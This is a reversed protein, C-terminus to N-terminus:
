GFTFHKSAQDTVYWVFVLFTGCSLGLIAAVRYRYSSKLFVTHLGPRGPVLVLMYVLMYVPLLFRVEMASSLTTLCCAVLALPYRWRTPRLSRRSATWLVRILALLVLLFGALRRVFISGLHEVYPTSQRVDLGNVLHRAFVMGMALPHSVIIGLYQGLTGIRDDEQEELIHLGEPDIYFMTPRHGAGVFTEYRQVYMGGTLQIYDLGESSGPIFSWKHAYRHSSLAQPLSVGAFGVILLGVCLVRHALSARPAKGERFWTWALLLPVILLLSVYEPRINIALGTASGAVLMWGPADPSAIAVFALLVMCLAPFDSLPSDMYGSWFVLLLATLTARRALGWKREPWTAESLRPVLVAGILAFLAANFIRVVISASSRFANSVDKLGHNVLPYAYGRLPSAFNLLSFHGDRVFSGGLSWYLAADYYFPKDGAALAVILTMAIAAGFAALSGRHGIRLAQPAAPFPFSM